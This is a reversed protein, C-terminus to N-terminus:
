NKNNDIDELVDWLDEACKILIEKTEETKDNTWELLGIEGTDIDKREWIYWTIIETKWDGYKTFFLNEILLYFGDEYNILNLQFENAIKDGRLVLEEYLEVLECFMDKDNLPNTRKKIHLKKGFEIM